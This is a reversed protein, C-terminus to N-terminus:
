AEQLFRQKASMLEQTFLPFIGLVQLVVQLPTLAHDGCEQGFVQRLDLQLLVPAEDLVFGREEDALFGQLFLLPEPLLLELSKEVANRWSGCFKRRWGQWYIGLMTDKPSSAVHSAVRQVKNESWYYQGLAVFLRSVKVSTRFCLGDSSSDSLRQCCFM